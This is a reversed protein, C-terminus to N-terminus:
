DIAVSLRLVLLCRGSAVFVHRCETAMTFNVRGGTAYKVRFAAGCLKEEWTLNWPRRAVDRRIVRKWAGKKMSALDILGEIKM